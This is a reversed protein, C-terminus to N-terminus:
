HEVPTSKKAKRRRKTKKKPTPQDPTDLNWTPPPLNWFLVPSDLSYHSRTQYTSPSALISSANQRCNGREKYTRRPKSSSVRKPTGANALTRSAGVHQRKRPVRAVQGPIAITKGERSTPPQPHGRSRITRGGGRPGTTAPLLKRRTRKNRKIPYPPLRPVRPPHDM